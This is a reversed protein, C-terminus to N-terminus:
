FLSKVTLTVVASHALGTGAGTTAATVAVQYTGPPTGGTIPSVSACGTMGVGLGVALLVGSLGALLSRRRKWGPVLLLAFAGLAVAASASKSGAKHPAATQITLKAGGQGDFLSAPSFSCTANAPLGSCSLALPQHFGQLSAVSVQVSAAVGTYVSVAGPKVEISFDGATITEKFVESVSKTFDADGEYEATLNHVGVTSFSANLSATGDASLKQSGLSDAGDYFTVSGGQVNASTISAVVRATLMVSQNRVGPNPAGTLSTSTSVATIVETLSASSAQLDNTGAFSATVPYSGPVLTGITYSASGSADTTLAVTQGNFSLHIINGAGAPQSTGNFYLRAKFTVPSLATYPNNSSGLLLYTPAAHIVVPVSNCNSKAYISSGGYECTLEYSGGALSSTALTAVGGALTGTGVVSAGNLFTVVGTPASPEPLTAAAVTASLTVPSGYTSTVPAVALTSTTALADVVESCSATSGAFSGTPVYTATISHTGAISGTYTLNAGGGVLGQTALLAGNDTFSISGTPTGSVSTVSATFQASGGIDITGPLCKLAASTAIGTIVQTISATSASFTGTPQYNATITHSGVTLTSVTFAASGTSSVAQSTLLTSGDFFEILGTPTGSASGSQVTLQATFTVSQGAQAPNLSSTLTEAVGCDNRTSPYEYAGIDIICGNGTVDAVRPNGAFDESWVQKSAKQATALVSNQGHDIAPSTRKLTYNHNAPDTFQPDAAINNYKDSVDVCYNGFFPGGANYLINNQFTPQYAENPSGFSDCNVAPYSTSGSIINNIFTDSPIDGGYAGPDPYIQAIQACETYGGPGSDTNDVITNNLIYVGFGATAIAGGGCGATNGYILNQAILTSDGGGVLNIAGGSGGPSANNRIINNQITAPAGWIAIGAGGNGGADENGSEVNNEITNGYILSHFFGDIYSEDPYGNGLYIAAGGGFSCQGNPDQTASLTSNRVIVGAGDTEIAWCNSLTIISDQVTAISNRLYVSGYAFTDSSEFNGGHQITFGSIISASTENTVFSIAPAKSGGDIITKTAGDSSTVTIAKGEFDINENYTGPGVLVTDGGNAADIGAQITTYAQGAGVHITTQAVSATAILSLTCVFASRLTFLLKSLM